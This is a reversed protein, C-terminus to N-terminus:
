RTLELVRGAAAVVTRTDPSRLLRRLGAFDNAVRQVMVRGALERIAPNTDILLRELAQRALDLDFPAILEAAYVSVSPDRDSVLGRVVNQWTGDPQSAMRRATDIRIHADESTLSRQLMEIGTQDNMRFLGTAASFRVHFPNATDAYLRRLQPIASTANLVGLGDSAAALHDPHNTDKLLNTLPPVALPSRSQILAEIQFMKSGPTKEIQDILRRVANEDGLRALARTDGLAGAMMRTALRARAEADDDAALFQLADLAVEDQTTAGWLIARAARRLLYGDDLRRDALWGEYAALGGLGGARAIEAEVLLSAAAISRPYKNLVLRANSAADAVRGAALLAWGNYLALTEETLVPPPQSAQPDQVGTAPAPGALVITLITLGVTRSILSRTLM